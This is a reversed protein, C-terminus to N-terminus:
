GAAGFYYASIQLRYDRPSVVKGNRSSNPNVDRLLFDSKPEQQVQAKASLAPTALTMLVALWVGSRFLGVGNRLASVDATAGRRCRSTMTVPQM